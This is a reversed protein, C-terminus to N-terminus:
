YEQMISVEEDHLEQVMQSELLEDIPTDDLSTETEALQGCNVTDSINTSSIQPSKLSKRTDNM